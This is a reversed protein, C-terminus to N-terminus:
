VIKQLNNSLISWFYGVMNRTPKVVLKSSGLHGFNPYYTLAEGIKSAITYYYFFWNVIIM